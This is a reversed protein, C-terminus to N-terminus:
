YEVVLNPCDCVAKFIASRVKGNTRILEALAEALANKEQDSM